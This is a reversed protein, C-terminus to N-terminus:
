ASAPVKDIAPKQKMKTAIFLFLLVLITTGLSWLDKETMAQQVLTYFSVIDLLILFLFSWLYNRSKQVLMSVIWVIPIIFTIQDYAWLYITSIFGIPIILNLAEWSSWAQNKWLLYGALGLLILSVSAGLITWCPSTGNCALYAFAWVNSHVGETRDMVADSAGMFKQIWQPDQVFGIVALLIGGIGIGIIAKWNKKMLFWLSALLLITLGQPPKLMTLALLIGAFIFNEKELFYVSLVLFLLAFAGVTGTHLTLYSPGFFIAALFIPLLLRKAAENNMLTLLIYISIVIFLLSVVQWITYADGMSFFGLPICLIALPLPYPFIRNPEWKIGYKDHNALYINEDYPNEGDITMKGALWFFAFNSDQYDFGKSLQVRAYIMGAILILSVFTGIIKKLM